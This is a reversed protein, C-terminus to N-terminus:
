STAGDTSLIIKGFNRNAEIAEHARAVQELPYVSDVVPRLRGEALLPLWRERFRQAIARKDALPRSRMVTGKVQLRGGIITDLDIETVMGGMVGALILRGAPRLVALNRTLYSAGMFDAVVDVGAGGTLRMVERAFDHTRYNVAAEAGLAMARRAKEESGVTCLVRAGASRAMQICATGVGSGGAHVLVTEGPALQGLVFLMTDATFFVEPVAAAQAFSWGEPMRMALRHDMLCLEAYGGGPVLGFVRDGPAFGEVGPGLSEVEGAAEVGLIPSEGPPAPYEGMRQLTDGRNLAAARVKVRLQEPGPEPPPVEALAMVEVGGAGNCVVARM